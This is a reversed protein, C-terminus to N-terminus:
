FRRNTMLAAFAISGSPSACSKRRSEPQRFRAACSGDCQDGPPLDHAEVRTPGRRRKATPRNSGHEDERDDARRAGRKRRILRDGSLDQLELAARAANPEGKREGSRATGQE